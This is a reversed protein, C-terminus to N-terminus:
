ITSLAGMTAVIGFVIMFVGVSLEYLANKHGQTSHLRSQRLLMIGPVTFVLATSNIASNLKFVIKLDTIFMSAASVVLAYFLRITSDSYQQCKASLNQLQSSFNMSHFSHNIVVSLAICVRTINVFVLGIDNFTYKVIAERRAQASYHALVNADLDNSYPGFSLYGFLGTFSNIIAVGVFAIFAALFYKKTTNQNQYCTIIGGVCKIDSKNMSQYFIPSVYHACISISMTGIASFWYPSVQWLEINNYNKNNNNNHNQLQNATDDIAIPTVCAVTLACILVAILGFMSVFSFKKLNIFSFPVCITITLLTVCIEHAYSMHHTMDFVHVINKTAILIYLIGTTYSYCALWFSVIKGSNFKTTGAFLKDWIQGFNDTETNHSLYGILGFSLASLFSIIIIFIFSPIISSEAFIMPMGLMGAGVVCKTTNFITRAFSVTSDQLLTATDTSTDDDEKPENVFTQQQATSALEITTHM